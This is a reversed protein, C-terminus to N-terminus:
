ATLFISWCLISLTPWGKKLGERGVPIVDLNRVYIEALLHFDIGHSCLFVPGDYQALSKNLQYIEMQHYRQQDFIRLVFINYSLMSAIIAVLVYGKQLPQELM